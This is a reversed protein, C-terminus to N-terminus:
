GLTCSTSRSKRVTVKCPEQRDIGIVVRDVQAVVLLFPLTQQSLVFADERHDDNQPQQDHEHGQAAHAKTATPAASPAPGPRLREVLFV